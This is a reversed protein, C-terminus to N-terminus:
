SAMMRRWKLYGFVAIVTYLGYLGATFPIGKYIYLGCSFADVVFWVMWQELYKKALAWLGIISLANVFSDCLPVNSPTFRILIWYILVWLALFAAGSPWLRSLPIHSIPLDSQERHRGLKWSLYGYVAALLYYVQLGFDAYLGAALYTYIYMAPMIIGVIWLRIDARYELWLYLLGVVTGAIDMILLSHVHWFELLESM